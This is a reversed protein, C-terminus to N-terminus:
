CVGDCCRYGAPCEDTTCCQNTPICGGQCVKQGPCPDAPPLPAPSQGGLHKKKHKHHKAVTAAPALLGSIGTLALGGLARTLTRRSPGHALSRSFADFASGDMHLEPPPM